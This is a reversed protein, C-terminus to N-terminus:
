ESFDLEEFLYSAHGIRDIVFLVFRIDVSINRCVMPDFAIDSMTGEWVRDFNLGLLHGRDNLVPSGSNGGSTHNTAIFCVPITGGTAWRGYDKKAYIDRLSQPIDYDFINPNDKELIGELTSVPLYTIGDAPRYGQVTGYAVRLTSNADPFFVRDKDFEMIARMWTRYLLTLRSNIERIQPELKATYESLFPAVFQWAPDNELARLAEEKPLALLALTKEKDALASANFLQNSLAGFDVCANNLAPLNVSPLPSQPLLKYYETLLARFIDKDIPLYYDKFFNTALTVAADMKGSSVTKHLDDAFRLLEVAMIAENHLDAAFQLPQLRNYLEKMEPMLQLYETRNGAQAWAMFRDEFHRKKGATNLRIIGNAEGQWKKWANSVGANKNSYQIRVAQDKSQYNNMIDLRLTRLRIKVPNSVNAIYDVAPSLVYEQTRGPYGYVMTFDGESIGKTSITLYKRPRYPVNEPSYDAPQNEANAYVRFLSFDGTHRPWMWNDTDGGFKGISSPPAGVLRVDSFSENVYLFYQNGYYMPSVQASWFKPDLGKLAEETISKINSAIASDRAAETMPENIDTLVRATVDEMRRLFTVRLSKNPLEDARTMAWFGDKLYDHEVSSHAQIQGYGCHHNTILLGRDSILEGTCGGGFHVIADKLCAKNVSYIDEASLRFGLKQMDVIKQEILVPLWMGEDACLSKPIIFAALLLLTLLTRRKM